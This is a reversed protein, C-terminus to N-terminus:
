FPFNFNSALILVTEGKPNIFKKIFGQNLFGLEKLNNIENERDPLVLFISPDNLNISNLGESLGESIDIGKKGSLFELAPDCGYCMNGDRLFFINFNLNKFNSLYRGAISASYNNPYYNWTKNKEVNIFDITCYVCLVLTMAALFLYKRNRFIKAVSFLGYAVIIISAPFVTMFRSDMIDEVLVGSVFLGSFFWFVLFVKEINFKKFIDVALFLIGILLFTFLLYNFFPTSWRTTGQNVFFGFAKFAFFYKYTIVKLSSIIDAKKIEQSELFNVQVFRSFPKNPNNKNLVVTPFIAIAFGILYTFLCILFYKFSLKRFILSLLLLSIGLFFIFTFGLYYYQAIACVVGSFFIFWLNKSKIGKHLLYLSLCSSGTMNIVGLGTRSNHIHLPNFALLAASVLSLEKSFFEKVILYIFIVALTGEVASFLRLSLLPEKFIKIYFALLFFHLSTWDHPIAKYASFDKAIEQVKMAMSAADGDVCVPYETIKFFRLFIAFFVILTLLFILIKKQLFNM